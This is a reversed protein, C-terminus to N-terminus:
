QCRLDGSKRLAEPQARLGRKGYLFAGATQLQWERVQGLGFRADEPVITRAQLAEQLQRATRQGTRNLFVLGTGVSGQGPQYALEAHLRQDVQALDVAEARLALVLGAVRGELGEGACRRTPLNADDAVLVEGAGKASGEGAEVCACRDLQALGAPEAFAEVPGAIM